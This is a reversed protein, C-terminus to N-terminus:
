KWEVAVSNLRKAATVLKDTLEILTPQDIEYVGCLDNIKVAATLADVLAIIKEVRAVAATEIDPRDFTNEDIAVTLVNQAGALVVIAAAVPDCEDWLGFDARVAYAHEISARTEPSTRELAEAPPRGPFAKGVYDGFNKTMTM